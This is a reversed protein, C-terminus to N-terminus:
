RCVGWTAYNPTNWQYAYQYGTQYLPVCVGSPCTRPNLANCYLLYNNNYQYYSYPNSIPACALGWGQRYIPSNGYGCNQGSYYGYHNRPYQNFGYPLSDWSCGYGNNQLCAQNTATTNAMDSNQGNDKGCGSLIGSLALLVGALWVKSWTQAIMNSEEETFKEPSHGWIPESVM